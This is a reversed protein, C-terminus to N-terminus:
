QALATRGVDVAQGLTRVDSSQVTTSCAMGLLEAADGGPAADYAPAADPM